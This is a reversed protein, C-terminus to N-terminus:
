PPQPIRLRVASEPGRMAATEIAFRAKEDARWGGFDEDGPLEDFNEDGFARLQIKFM